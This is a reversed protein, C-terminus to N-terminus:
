NLVEFDQFSTPILIGPDFDHSSILFDPISFKWVTGLKGSNGMIKATNAKTEDQDHTAEIRMRTVKELFPAIGKEGLYQHFWRVNFIKLGISLYFQALCSHLLINEARYTQILVEKDLKRNTEEFRQRMYPSLNELTLKRKNFIPPFNQESMAELLEEPGDITCLLFGYLEGSRIGKLLTESTEYNYLIRPFHTPTNRVTPLKEYWECEKMIIVEGFKEMRKLKEEDKEVKEPNETGIACNHGHFFCGQFEYVKAKQGDTVYGDPRDGNLDKEGQHYKHHFKLGQCETAEIYYLWQVAPLSTDTSMVSKKFSGNQYEWLIGPTTPMPRLQCYGYLANFDWQAFATYASGDPAVRNAIPGDQNM